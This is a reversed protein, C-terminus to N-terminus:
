QEVRYENVSHMLEFFFHTLYYKGEKESRNYVVVNSNDNEAWKIPINWTYSFNKLFFVNLKIVFLKFTLILLHACKEKYTIPWPTTGLVCLKCFPSQAQLHAM